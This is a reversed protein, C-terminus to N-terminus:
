VAAFSTVSLVISVIPSAELLTMHVFIEDHDVSQNVYESISNKNHRQM